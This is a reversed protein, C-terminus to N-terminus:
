LYYFPIEQITAKLSDSVVSLGIYYRDAEEFFVQLSDVWWNENYDLGWFLYLQIEERPLQTTFSLEPGSLPVSLSMTTRLHEDGNFKLLVNHGAFGSQFHVDVPVFGEIQISPDENQNDVDENQIVSNDDCSAWFLFVLMLLIHSKSKNM